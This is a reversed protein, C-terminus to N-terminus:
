EVSSMGAGGGPLPCREWIPLRERLGCADDAGVRREGNREDVVASDHEYAPWSIDGSMVRCGVERCRLVSACCYELVARRISHSRSFRAPPIHRAQDAVMM